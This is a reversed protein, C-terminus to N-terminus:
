VAMSAYSKKKVTKPMPTNELTRPKFYDGCYSCLWLKDSEIWEAVFRAPTKIGYRKMLETIIDTRIYGNVNAKLKGEPLAKVAIIRGDNSCYIDLNRFPIKEMLKPSLMIHNIDTVKIYFLSDSPPPALKTFNSLDLM